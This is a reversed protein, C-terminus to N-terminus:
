AGNALCAALAAFAARRPQDNRAYEPAYSALTVGGLKVRSRILRIADLLDSVSLGDPVPYSTAQGGTEPDLVDLDLHVYGLTDRLSARDLHASLATRVQPVTLHTVRSASLVQGETPDLDRTGLLFTTDPAAVQVFGPVSAALTQWAMGLLISMGMGDLFGSATTAPTNAEGHADFWFISRPHPTLASLLGVAGVNCNGSLVIPFHGATRAQRAASAVGRMLEFATRIEAPSADPRDEIVQTSAIHHGEQELHQVLGHRLLHEPGNGARWDRRATDYPAIILAIHV